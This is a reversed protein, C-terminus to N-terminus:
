SGHADRLADRTEDNAEGTVELGHQEQFRRLAEELEETETEDIQGCEFGLNFLRQKVGSITDTPDLHGLNLPITTERETGPEVILRGERADPPISVELRGDGDTHGERVIRGDIQLVFPVDARPEDEVPESEPAQRQITLDKGDRGQQITETPEEGETGPEKLLRLRLKAPVGKKLFRHRTDTAGSELKERREPVFVVDGPRLVNPNERQQRLEANNPHNWVTEWFLGYREAISSICEGQTVTHDPM